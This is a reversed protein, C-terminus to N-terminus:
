TLYGGQRLAVMRSQLVRGPCATSMLEQHTHVRSVPVNCQSRLTRLATVLTDLQPQTPSQRDFNGLVLIGLNHENNEKVHAGQYRPDRGAWLRGARDVIYHYGIDGWGRDNVHAARIQDIRAATTTADTFSVPTWGEHHITIRGVGNMANIRNMVPSATAWRGRDIVSLSAAPPSYSAPVAAVPRAVPTPPNPPGVYPQGLERPRSPTPWAAAPHSVGPSAAGACGTLGAAGGALSALGALVAHRRSLMM